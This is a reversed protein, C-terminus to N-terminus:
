GKHAVLLAGCGILVIGLWNLASLREGLFAVGFVAVLVISLKDLPAVRAADGLKLARFYCLWSAGTAFGSLALFTYTRAPIEALPQYQRTVAVIAALVGAVIVTRILTALDSNIMEVGIKAFIATLAAFGASLLAWFAWSSAWARVGCGGDAAALLAAQHQTVLADIVEDLAEGAIVKDLKYLTLHIRHDTLRGQPFNYTRIRESRDGSGM